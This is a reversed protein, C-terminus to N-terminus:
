RTVVSFLLPYTCSPFSLSFSPSPLLSFADHRGEEDIYISRFGGIEIINAYNPNSPTRNGLETSKHISTNTSLRIGCEFLDLFITLKEEGVVIKFEGSLDSV